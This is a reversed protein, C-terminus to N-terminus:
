KKKRKAAKKKPAKGDLLDDDSMDGAFYAECAKRTVWAEVDLVPKWNVKDQAEFQEAGLTVIPLHPEKNLQRVGIEKILDGLVNRGSVSNLSFKVPTGSGDLTAMGFGISPKWGDGDATVDHDELDSKPIALEDRKYISWEYRGVPKSKKWCVWGEVVSLPEVLYLQDPDPTEKRQGLAYAGSKGSFTLFDIGGSGTTVDEGVTALAQGAVEDSIAPLNSAGKM